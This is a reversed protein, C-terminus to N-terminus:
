ARLVAQAAEFNVSTAATAVGLRQVVQGAVTPAVSVGQGANTASLFVAGATMGSVQDNTGEFRVAAMDGVNYAALVFGHAPKGPTSADANRIKFDDGDAYVNVYAGALLVEGVEIATDDEGVGDPLMTSPLRGNGDLSPIKGADPAGGMVATQQERLMGADTMELYKM